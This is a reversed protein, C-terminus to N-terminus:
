QGRDAKAIYNKIAQEYYSLARQLLISDFNDPEIIIKDGKVTVNYKYNKQIKKNIKEQEDRKVQQAEKNVERVINLAEVVNIDPKLITKIVEEKRTEDKIQTVALAKRVGLRQFQELTIKNRIAIYNYATARGFGLLEAYQSLFEELGKIQRLFDGILWASFERLQHLRTLIMIQQDVPKGIFNERQTEYLDLLDAYIKRDNEEFNKARKEAVELAFDRPEGKINRISNLIEINKKDIEKM